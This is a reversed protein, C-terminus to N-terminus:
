DGSKVREWETKLISQTHSVIEERKGKELGEYRAQQLMELLKTSEGETPNLLLEVKYIHSLLAKELPLIHAWRQDDFEGIRNRVINLMDRDTLFATVEDRLSNIWSQRNNSVSSARAQIVAATRLAEIQEGHAKEAAMLQRTLSENANEIQERSITSASEVSRRSAANTWLALLLTALAYIAGVIVLLADTNFGFLLSDKM